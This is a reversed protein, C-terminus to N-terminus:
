QPGPATFGPELASVQMNASEVGIAVEEKGFYMRYLLYLILGIVVWMLVNNFSLQGFGEVINIPNRSYCRAMGTQNDYVRDAYISKADMPYKMNNSERNTCNGFVDCSVMAPQFQEM